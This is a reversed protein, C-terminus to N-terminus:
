ENAAFILFVQEGYLNGVPISFASQLVASEGVALREREIKDEVQQATERNDVFIKRVKHKM